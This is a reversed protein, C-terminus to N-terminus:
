FSSSISSLFVEYPKFVKFGPDLIGMVMIGQNEVLCFPCGDATSFRRTRRNHQNTILLNAMMIILCGLPATCLTLKPSKKTRNQLSNKVWSNTM